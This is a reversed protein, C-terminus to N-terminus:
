SPPGDQIPEVDSVPALELVVFRRTWCPDFEVTPVEHLIGLRREVLQAIGFQTLEHPEPYGGCAVTPFNGM